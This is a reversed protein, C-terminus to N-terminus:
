NVTFPTLRVSGDHYDDLRIEAAFESDLGPRMGERYSRDKVPFSSFLGPSRLSQTPTIALPVRPRPVIRARVLDGNMNLLSTLRCLDETTRCRPVDCAFRM